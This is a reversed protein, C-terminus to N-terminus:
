SIFKMSFNMDLDSDTDPDFDFFVRYRYRDRNRHCSLLLGNVKNIKEGPHKYERMITTIKM